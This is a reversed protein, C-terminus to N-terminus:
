RVWTGPAPPEPPRKRRRPESAEVIREIAEDKALGFAALKERAQEVAATRAQARIQGVATLLDLLPFRKSKKAGQFTVAIYNKEVSFRTVEHGLEEIAAKLNSLTIQEKGAALEEELSQGRRERALDRQVERMTVIPPQKLAARRHNLADTIQDSVRRAQSYPSIGRQRRTRPQELSTTNLVMVNLDDSGHISNWHWTWVALGDPVVERVYRRAFVLRERRSLFTDYPTRVIHLTALNKVDRGTSKEANIRAVSREAAVAFKKASLDPHASQMEDVCYGKPAHNKHNQNQLYNLLKKLAVPTSIEITKAYPM